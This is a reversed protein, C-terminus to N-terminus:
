ELTSRVCTPDSALQHLDIIPLFIESSKGPHPIRSHLMQMCGSWLPRPKPFHPSVRWLIDLKSNKSDHSFEGLKTYIIDGQIPTTNKEPVLKVHGIKKLDYMNVKGRHVTRTAKIGPIFTGMQGMVHISGHGDLTRTAHDKNDAQYQGFTGANDDLQDVGQTPRRM